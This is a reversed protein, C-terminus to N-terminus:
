EIYRMGKTITGIMIGRFERVVMGVCQACM